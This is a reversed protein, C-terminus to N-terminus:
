SKAPSLNLVRKGANRRDKSLESVWTGSVMRGRPTGKFPKRIPGHKMLSGRLRERKGSNTGGEWEKKERGETKEVLSSKGGGGKKWDEGGQELHINKQFNPFEGKIYKGRQPVSKGRPVV